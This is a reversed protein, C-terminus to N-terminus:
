KMCGVSSDLDMPKVRLCSISKLTVFAWGLGNENESFLGLFVCGSFTIHGAAMGRGGTNPSQFRATQWHLLCPLNEDDLLFCRFFHEQWSLIFHLLGYTVLCTRCPSSSFFTRAHFVRWRQLNLYNMPYREFFRHLFVIGLGSAVGSSNFCWNEGAIWAM